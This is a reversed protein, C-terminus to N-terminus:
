ALASKACRRAATIASSKPSTGPPADSALEIDFDHGAVQGCSPIASAASM